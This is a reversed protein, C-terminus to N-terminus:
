SMRNAEDIAENLATEAKAVTEAELAQLQEQAIRELIRNGLHPLRESLTVAWVGAKTTLSETPSDGASDCEPIFDHGDAM